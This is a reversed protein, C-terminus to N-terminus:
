DRQIELTAPFAPSHGQFEDLATMEGSVAHGKLWGDTVVGIVVAKLSILDFDLHVIASFSHKSGNFHYFAVIEDLDGTITEKLVEGTFTGDGIDGGVVGELTELLGPLNPDSTIWKTLTVKADRHGQDEKENDGGRQGHDGKKGKDSARTISTQFFLAVALAALAALGAFKLNKLTKM